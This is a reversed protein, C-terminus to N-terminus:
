VGELGLMPRRPELYVWQSWCPDVCPYPFQHQRIGLFCRVAERIWCSVTTAATGWLALCACSQAGLFTTLSRKPTTTLPLPFLVLFALVPPLVHKWSQSGIEQISFNFSTLSEFEFTGLRKYWLKVNSDLHYHYSTWQGFWTWQAVSLEKLWWCVPPANKDVLTEHVRTSLFFGHTFIFCMNLDCGNLMTPTPLSCLM